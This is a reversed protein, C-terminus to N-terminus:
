HLAVRQEHAGPQAERVVVTRAREYLRQQTRLLGIAAPVAIRPRGRGVRREVLGDGGDAAEGRVVRRRSVGPRLRRSAAPGFQEELMPDESAAGVAIYDVGLDQVQVPGRVPVVVEEDAEPGNILSAQEVVLAGVIREIPQCRQPPAVAGPPRGAASM